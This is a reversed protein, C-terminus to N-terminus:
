IYNIKSEIVLTITDYSRQKFLWYREIIYKVTTHACDMSRAIQACTWGNAFYELVLKITKVQEPTHKRLGLKKATKAITGHSVKAEAGMEAYSKKGFNEILYIEFDTM